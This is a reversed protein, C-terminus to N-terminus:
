SHSLLSIYIFNISYRIVQKIFANIQHGIPADSGVFGFESSSLSPLDMALEDREWLDSGNNQVRSQFNLM